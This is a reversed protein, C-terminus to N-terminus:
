KVSCPPLPRAFAINSRGVRPNRRGTKDLQRFTGSDEPKTKRDTKEENEKIQKRGFNENEKLKEMKFKM